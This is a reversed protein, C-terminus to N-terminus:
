GLIMAAGMGRLRTMGQSQIGVPISFPVAEQNRTAPCHIICESRGSGIHVFEPRVWHCLQRGVGLDNALIANCSKFGAEGLIIAAWWLLKSAVEIWADFDSKRRRPM